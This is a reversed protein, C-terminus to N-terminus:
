RAENMMMVRTDETVAVGFLLQRDGVIPSEAALEAFRLTARLHTTTRLVGHTLWPSILADAGAEVQARPVADVFRQRNARPDSEQLYGVHHRGRGRDAFPDLMRHTEPDALVYRAGTPIKWRPRGIVTPTYRPLFVAAALPWDSHESAVTDLFDELLTQSQAGQHALFVPGRNPM